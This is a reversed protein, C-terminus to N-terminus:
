DGKEENKSCTLDMVCHAKIQAPHTVPEEALIFQIIAPVEDRHFDEYKESCATKWVM